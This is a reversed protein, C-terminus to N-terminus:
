GVSLLCVSLSKKCTTSEVACCKLWEAMGDQRHLDCLDCLPGQPWFELEVGVGLDGVASGGALTATPSM